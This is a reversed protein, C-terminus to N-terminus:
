SSGKFNRIQDKLAEVLAAGERRFLRRVSIADVAHITIPPLGAGGGGEVVERVREALREPLVMERKHALLVSDGPLEWAGREASLINGAMAMVPAMAAAGAAPAAPGVLGAMFATVGAFTEYAYNMIKKIVRIADTAMSANQFGERVALRQSEGATEAATLAIQTAIWRVIMRVTMSIFEGLISSFINRMADRWTTTGLIIGKISTSFASTIASLVEEWKQKIAIITDSTNAVLRQQHEQDLLEIQNVLEQRRLNDEKELDLKRVLAERKVEYMRQELAREQQLREEANTVGLANQTRVRDREIEIESLRLQMQRDLLIEAMRLREDMVAREAALAERRAAEAEKSGAGYAEIMRREIEVAIELRKEGNKAHEEQESKLRSIEEQFAEQAIASQLDYMKKIVARRTEAEMKATSLMKQWFDREMELTFKQFSGREAGEAEHQSKLMALKGEMEGTTMFKPATETGSTGQRGAPATDPAFLRSIAEGSERAAQAINDRMTKMRDKLQEEGADLAKAAGTFDFRLAKSVADGISVISITLAQVAGVVLEVVMRIAFALAHFVFVLGKVTLAFGEVIEKGSGSIWNSFNTVVPMLAEGLVKTLARGVDGLDNMAARYGDVSDKGQTTLVLGLSAAKQEAQELVQNNLKFLDQLNSASKGFLQSAVIGQDLGQKYSLIIQIAELMLTKQDRFNGNNDRTRLGLAQIQEENTRLQRTLFQSAQAYQDASSQVDGLAIDLISAEAASIGMQKALKEQAVTFQETMNLARRMGEISLFGALFTKLKGFIEDFSKGLGGLKSTTERTFGEIRSGLQNLQGSIEDLKAAFEIEVRRQEDAM